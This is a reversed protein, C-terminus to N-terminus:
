EGQTQDASLGSQQPSDPNRESGSKQKKWLRWLSRGIESLDAFGNPKHDCSETSTEAFPVLRERCFETAKTIGEATSHVAEGLVRAGEALLTFGEMFQRSAAITEKAEAALETCQRLSAETEKEFRVIASDLRRLSRCLQVIGIVCAAAIMLVALTIGYAAVDWAM